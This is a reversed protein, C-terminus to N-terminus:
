LYYGPLPMKVKKFHMSSRYNKQLALRNRKKFAAIINDALNKKSDPTNDTRFPLNYKFFSLFLMSVVLMSVLSHPFVMLRQSGTKKGWIFCSSGLTRDRDPL